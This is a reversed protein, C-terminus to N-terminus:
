IFLFEVVKGKENTTPLLFLRPSAVSTSAEFHAKRGDTVCKSVDRLNAVLTEGDLIEGPSLSRKPVTGLLNARTGCSRKRESIRGGGQMLLALENCCEAVIESETAKM